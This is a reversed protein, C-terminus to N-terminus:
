GDDEPKQARSHITKNKIQKITKHKNEGGRYHNSFALFGPHVKLRKTQPTFGNRTQQKWNHGHKTKLLMHNSPSYRRGQFHDPDLPSTHRRPDHGACREGVEGRSAAHRLKSVYNYTTAKFHSESIRSLFGQTKTGQCKHDFTSCRSKRPDGDPIRHVQRDQLLHHPVRLGRDM